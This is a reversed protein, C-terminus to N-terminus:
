VSEAYKEHRQDSGDLDTDRRPSKARDEFARRDDEAETEHQDPATVIPDRQLQRCRNWM